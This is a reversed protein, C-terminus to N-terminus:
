GNRSTLPAVISPNVKPYDYLFDTFLRSVHPIGSFPLCESSVQPEGKRM